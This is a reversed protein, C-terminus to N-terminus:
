KKSFLKYNNDRSVKFRKVKKNNSGCPFIEMYPLEIVMHLLIKFLIHM